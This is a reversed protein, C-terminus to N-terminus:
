GETPSAVIDRPEDLSHNILTRFKTIDVISVVGIVDNGTDTYFLLQNVFDVAIGDCIAESALLLMIASVINVVSVHDSWFNFEKNLFVIKSRCTAQLCFSPTGPLNM